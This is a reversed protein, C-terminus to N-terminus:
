GFDLFSLFHLIIIIFYKTSVFFIIIKEISVELNFDRSIVNRAEQNQFTVTVLCPYVVM